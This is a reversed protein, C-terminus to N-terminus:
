GKTQQMDLKVLVTDYGLQFTCPFCPHRIKPGQIFFSWKNMVMFHGYTVMVYIVSVTRIDQLHAACLPPAYDGAVIICDHGRWVDIIKTGWLDKLQLVALLLKSMKQRTVRM